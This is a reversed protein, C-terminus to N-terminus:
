VHLFLLTQKSFGRLVYSELRFNISDRMLYM